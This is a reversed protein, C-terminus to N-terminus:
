RPPVKRIVAQKIDANPGEDPNLERADAPLYFVDIEAEHAALWARVRAAPYVRLRDLILFM